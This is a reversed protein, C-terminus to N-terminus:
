NVLRTEALWNLGYQLGRCYKDQGTTGRLQCTLELALNM